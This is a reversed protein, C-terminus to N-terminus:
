YKNSIKNKQIKLLTSVNPCFFHSVHMCELRGQQRRLLCDSDTLLLSINTQFKIKWISLEVWCITWSPFLTFIHWIQPLMKLRDAERLRWMSVTCSPFFGWTQSTQPLLKAWLESRLCWRSATCWPFLSWRQLTQPFIKPRNSLRLCDSDTLLLSIMKHIKIKRYASRLQFMPVFFHSVHM